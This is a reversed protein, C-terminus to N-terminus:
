KIIKDLVGKAVDYHIMITMMKLKIYDEHFFRYGKHKGDFAGSGSDKILYWYADGTKYYGVIHICHDNTTSGNYLRLERSDANIYAAPIDFDPVIAVEEIQCYGPESVDGCLSVTYGSTVASRILFIFDELSVNYYEKCKWWNDPEELEHKENYNYRKTSMFSYYRGPNLKLFERMYTQPNYVINNIKLVTPPEGLYKNLINKINTLVEEKDWIDATKVSKLYTEYEEFLKDHDNFKKGEQLGTYLEYPVLGYKNMIRQIANSESGQGLPTEGRTDVFNEARDYYDWYVLYMESLKVKKTTLRYIESEMFSVASYAWCTGSNGQSLPLNHYITNYLSIDNPYKKESFDVKFQLPAKYNKLVPMEGSIDPLIVKHYFGPPYIKYIGVYQNQAIIAVTVLVLILNFFVKKMTM